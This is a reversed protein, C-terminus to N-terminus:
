NVLCRDLDKDILSLHRGGKTKQRVGVNIRQDQLGPVTFRRDIPKLQM